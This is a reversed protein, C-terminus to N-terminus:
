FLFWSKELYAMLWPKCKKKIKLSIYFIDHGLFNINTEQVNKKYYKTQLKKAHSVKLQFNSTNVNISFKVRFQKELEIHLHM